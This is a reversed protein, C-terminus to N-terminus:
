NKHGLPDLEEKRRRLSELMEKKEKIEAQKESYLRLLDCRSLKPEANQQGDQSGQFDTSATMQTTPPRIPSPRSAKAVEKTPSNFLVTRQRRKERIVSSDVL